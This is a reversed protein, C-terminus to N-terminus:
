QGILDVYVTEGSLSVTVPLFALGKASTTLTYSEGNRLQGFRFNGSSGSRVSVTEGTSSTLTIIAGAIGEGMPDVIRGQIGDKDQSEVVELKGHRVASEIEGENLVLNRVTLPTTTGAAGTVVFHLNVLTGEGVMGGTGYVFVILRGPEPSNSAVAMGESLTPALDAAIKAPSLVMPDFLVEFEYGTVGKASLDTTTIPIVVGTGSSAGMEPASVWVADKSPERTTEVLFPAELPNWNGTVDGKLIANYNESSISANLNAYNRSAPQFIWTGTTGPNAIGVKWQSIYTADLNSVTGNGTVDGAIIQNANLTILGVTHQAVRTADTNSIASNSSGLPLAPKSPTVTYAGAGFGSLSYNGSGNTVTSVNGGPGTGAVTVNPVGPTTPIGNVYTVAGSLTGSIVVVSGGDTISCPYGENFQFPGFAVPSPTSNIGGVINFRLNLLLGSGALPSATTSFATIGLTGPVSNNVLVTLGSSITGVQDFGVFSLVSTNYTISTEYGFAGRTTLDTTNIPINVITNPLGTIGDPISVTACVPEVVIAASVTQGDITTATGGNGFSTGTFTTGTVGATTSSTPPAVTGNTGVFSAPTGNPVNGSGSTDLANSNITLSSTVASNGGLPISNPTASTTLTLWPDADATGLVANAAVPCGAGSAGPGYNCGWWNNEANVAGATLNNLGAVSNGVIRNFSANLIGNSDVLIGTAGNVVSNSVMQVPQNGAFNSGSIFQFGINAGSVRNGNYAVTTSASSHSTIRFARQINLAPNNGIALNNFQNGSVTINSSHGHANEWIGLIVQPNASQANLVNLTNNTIQLGNYVAGGSTNSQMAVETSFSSGSSVGDGYMEFLNGSITQNTGFSFHLGINQNVDAPAVVANLDRATRIHNNLIQTGNFLTSPGGPYYFGIPNDFDLIRLNSITWNQNTGLNFFQFVGELNVAALDGPGQITAAGLSAATITVGNLNAAALIGYDDDNGGIGDSGLAWSAAANPETWNFTGSLVITDGNVAAQVANNIRTYDNDLATPSGAPTITISADGGQFGFTGRGPTTEINTDTGSNLFPSYIFNASAPGAIDPQGGPDTATGGYIVPILAAYGPEASNATTVVPSTSGFWNGAFNKQNTGPVPLSGGSQRDVIEGYWNGSISNNSFTSNAATQVPINTGSSADLFLVGVTRNNTVFNEVFTMNDTQNRFIVGTHNNDIVNNRVTHGNSNNIDIASRNGSIVNDHILANLITQGQIAVGASNLGTNNWDTTNNGQRTITFGSIEVNNGTIRVTAGDGGIAGSITTSGSGAGTVKVTKNILIDEIYTGAAVQVEGGILAGNIGAQITAYPANDSGNLPFTNDVFVVGRGNEGGAYQACVYANDNTQSLSLLPQYFTVNAPALTALLAIDCDQNQPEGWTNGSFAFNGGEVVWGKTGSVNNGAITGGSTASGSFYAPQRLTHIVNNSINLNNSTSVVFARSFLNTASWTGGPNPGYILNNQATFNDGQVWILNHESPSHPTTKQIELNDLTVDNATVHFLNTPAAPTQIVPRIAEAAIITLGTKNLSITAANLYTGPCVRITDGPNAALVADGVNNHAFGAGGCNGLAAAGDDDVYIIQSPEFDFTTETNSIGITFKDVNGDFGGAWGSGAKFGVGGLTPTSNIGGNPYLALVQAWTCPTAMPCASNGPAGSFTWRGNMPNWTQWVGTSVTETFYPEYVMRGQWGTTGDTLDYDFNFSFAPALAPGGATRYTSYELSTIQDLRTGAYDLKGLLQGGVNDPVTLRASGIGAPTTGPGNVFSGTGTGSETLFGWGFNSEPRVTVVTPPALNARRANDVAIFAFENQAVWGYRNGGVVAPITNAPTSLTWTGVAVGNSAVISMDVALVGANNRFSHKFTYWGSATIAIPSRGPNKPFSNARGTNNSASVVFRPVGAGPGTADTYFGANFAYDQLHNGSSNSSAVDWDFRTDNAFGGAVNLYIDVSTVYGLSPFVSNYGGFDTSQTNAEAHFGGTKSTISNTGSPVRTPNTITGTTDWVNDVEFGQSFQVSESLDNSSLDKDDAIQPSEAIPAALFALLGEAAPFIANFAKAPVAFTLAATLTLLVAASMLGKNVNGKRSFYRQVNRTFLVRFSVLSSPMRM